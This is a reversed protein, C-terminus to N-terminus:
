ARHLAGTVKLIHRLAFGEAVTALELFEVTVQAANRVELAHGVGNEHDVSLFLVDRHGLSALEAQRDDRDHVGVTVGVHDIVDDGAIVVGNTRTRQETTQHGVGHNFTSEDTM